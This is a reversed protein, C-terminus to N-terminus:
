AANHSRSENTPEYLGLLGAFGIFGFMPSVSFLGPYMAMALSGLIFGLIWVAISTATVEPRPKAFWRFFRFYCIYSLFSFASFRWLQPDFIGAVGIIGLLGLLSLTRPIRDLLKTTMHLGKKELATTKRHMNM